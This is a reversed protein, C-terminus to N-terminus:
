FGMGDRVWGTWVPHSRGGRNGNREVPHSWHSRNMLRSIEYKEPRYVSDFKWKWKHFFWPHFIQCINGFRNKKKKWICGASIRNNRKKFFNNVSHCNIPVPQINRFLALNWLVIESFVGMWVRTKSVYLGLLEPPILVFFTKFIFWRSSLFNKDILWFPEHYFSGDLGCFIQNFLKIAM